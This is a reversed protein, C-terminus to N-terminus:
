LCFLLELTDSLFDFKLMFFDTSASEEELLANTEEATLVTFFLAILGAKFSDILFGQMRHITVEVHDLDNTVLSNENSRAIFGNVLPAVGLTDSVVILAQDRTARALM